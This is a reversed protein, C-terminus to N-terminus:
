PQGGEGDIDVIELQPPPESRRAEEAMLKKITADDAGTQEVFRLWRIRPVATAAREKARQILVALRGLKRQEAVRESAQHGPISATASPDGLLVMLQATTARHRTCLQCRCVNDGAKTANDQHARRVAPGSVKRGPEGESRALAEDVSALQAQLAGVEEKAALAAQVDRDLSKELDERHRRASVRRMEAAPDTVDIHTAALRRLEAELEGLSTKSMPWLRHREDRERREDCGGQAGIKQGQM